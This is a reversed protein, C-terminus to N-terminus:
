AKPEEPLPGRKMRLAVEALKHIYKPAFVGILLLTDLMLLNGTIDNGGHLWLANFGIFAWLLIFSNLRTSSKVGESEEFFGTKM